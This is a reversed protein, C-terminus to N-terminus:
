INYIMNLYIHIISNKIGESLDLFISFFNTLFFYVHWFLSKSHFYLSIGGKFEIQFWDISNCKIKPTKIM